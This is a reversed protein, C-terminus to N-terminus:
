IMGGMDVTSYMSQASTTPLPADVAMRDGSAARAAQKERAPKAILVQAPCVVIEEEGAGTQDGKKVVLPFLVIRVVAQQDELDENSVGIDGSRENMTLANFYVKRVLDGNNDYEPRLPPLMMYEARQTRMEISLDVAERVVNRLSDQIQNLLHPPPPLLSSLTHLIEQVVAETDQARQDLFAPRRSLLTLTTARWQHVAAQPGVDALTKELAKLKQRQERDMGFLYRTFIYEWVMIMVVSMFIDRRKVRDNLYYDVDTDDLTTNDVRDRIKDDEVDDLPRCQKNDSFKSFRLVWEKVHQCLTQCATEFYDEDRTVLFNESSKSEMIQRQLAKVKEKASLLEGNLRQLQVNKEELAVSIEHRVIAEMGSTLEDHQQRLNELQATREELQRRPADSQNRTANEVQATLSANLAAISANVQSLRAVEQQIRQLTEKLQGIETDKVRLELDRTELAEKLAASSRQQNYLADELNEEAKAKAEVLLRNESVVQDLKTELDMLQMSHRRRMLSPPRTPSLPSGQVDGWGEQMLHRANALTPPSQSQLHSACVTLPFRVATASVYVDAMDRARGKGKDKVPDYTSSSPLFLEAPARTPKEKAQERKSAARLDGSVSRDVRRLPPTRPSGTSRNSLVSGARNSLASAPRNASDRDRTDEPSKRRNISTSSRASHRDTPSRVDTERASPRGPTIPSLSRRLQSPPKNDTSRDIDVTHDNEDVAPWSLRSLLDETSILKTDRTSTPRAVLRTPSHDTPGAPLTPANENRPIEPSIPSLERKAARITPEYGPVSRSKKSLPSNDPSNESITGLRRRESATIEIAPRTPSAVGSIDSNTGAPGGFISPPSRHSPLPSTSKKPASSPHSFPHTDSIERPQPSPPQVTDIQLQRRAQVEGAKPTKPPPSPDAEIQVQHQGHTTGVERPQSPSPGTDVQVRRQTDEQSKIIPPTHRSSEIQIRHRTHTDDVERPRAPPSHGSDLRIHRAGGTSRPQPSPSHEPDPRARHQVDTHMGLQAADRMPPTIEKQRGRDPSQPSAGPSPSGVLRDKAPPSKFLISDREKSASEVPSPEPLDDISRSRLIGTESQAIIPDHMDSEMRRQQPNWVIEISPASDSEPHDEHPRSVSLEYSSSLEVSINLPDSSSSSTRQGLESHTSDSRGAVTAPLKDASRDDQTTEVSEAKASRPRDSHSSDPRSLPAIPLEVISLVDHTAKALGADPKTPPFSPHKGSLPDERVLKAPETKAPQLEPHSDPKRPRPASLTGMPPDEQVAKISLMGTGQRESDPTSSKLPEVSSASTGQQQLSHPELKGLPASPLAEPLLGKELVTSQRTQITRQEKARPSNPRSLSLRPLKSIHSDNQAIEAPETGVGQQSYPPDPRSLPLNPLDSTLSFDGPGRASGRSPSGYAAPPQPSAPVHEPEAHETTPIDDHLELSFSPAKPTSQGSGLLEGSPELLGKTKDKDIYLGPYSLGLDEHGDDWPRTEELTRQQLGEPAETIEYAEGSHLSPSRSTTRSSPLSPYTEDQEVEQRSMHREVLYLPRFETSSKFETSNPRSGRRPAGPSSLPSKALSPSVLPRRFSLPIATPSALKSATQTLRHDPTQAAATELYETERPQSPPPIVASSETGTGLEIQHDGSQEQSLDLDPLAREVGKGKDKKSVGTSFSSDSIAVPEDPAEVPSATPFLGEGIESIFIAKDNEGRKPRKADVMSESLSEAPSTVTFLPEEEKSPKDRKRKKDNKSKDVVEPPSTADLTISGPGEQTLALALPIDVATSTTSDKAKEDENPKTHVPSDPITAPRELIHTPAVVITIPELERLLQPSSTEGKEVLAQASKKGKKDKKSKTSQFSPDIATSSEGLVERVDSAAPATEGLENPASSSPPIIEEEMWALANKKKAKRDKKSKTKLPSSVAAPEELNEPHGTITSVDKETPTPISLAEPSVASSKLERRASPSLPPEEEMWSQLDGKKNKKGEKGKRLKATTQAFPDITALSESVDAPIIAAPTIPNLERSLPIEDTDALAPAPTAEPPSVEISQTPELEKPALPPPPTKTTDKSPHAPFIEAPTEMTPPALQPEESELPAPLVWKEQPIPTPLIESPAINARSTSELKEPGVFSALIPKDKRANKKGKKVKDRKSNQKTDAFPDQDALLNDPAEPPSAETEPEQPVLPLTRAVETEKSAPIPSTEPLSTNATPTCKPEETAPSQFPIEETRALADRKKGKEKRSKKEAKSPRDPAAVHEDVATPSSGTPHRTSELVQSTPSQLATQDEQKSADGKEDGGGVGRKSSASSDPVVISKDLIESSAAVVPPTSKTGESAFALLPVEAEEKSTPILPIEPPSATASSALGLEEPEIGGGEARLLPVLSALPSLPIEEVESTPLLPIEVPSTATHSTVPLERAHFSPPTKDEEKPIPTRLAEPMGATTLLNPELEEPTPPLPIKAAERLADLPIATLKPGEPALSLRLTVDGEKLVRTPLIEPPRAVALPHDEAKPLPLPIEGAEGPDQIPTTQSPDTVTPLNLELEQPNEDGETFGRTSASSKRDKKGKKIKKSTKTNVPPKSTATAEGAVEAPTIAGLLTPGPEEPPLPPSTEEQEVRSQNGRKKGKKEKKPKKPTYSYPEIDTMSGSVAAATPTTTPVIESEEPALQPPAEEVEPAIAVNKKGKKDKKDKKTKIERYVSSEPTAAATAEPEETALTISRASDEEMSTSVPLIDTPPPTSKIEEGEAFAPTSSRRKVEDEQTKRYADTPPETAATSEGTTKERSTETPIVETERPALSASSGDDKPTPLIVPPSTETPPTSKLNQEPRIEDEALTPVASDKKTGKKEKKGKKAAKAPAAVLNELVGVQSRAAILTSESMQSIEDEEKPAPSFTDKKGSGKRSKKTVKVRYMSPDPATVTAGLDEAQSTTTPLTPKLERSALFEPLIEDEESLAPTPTGKVTKKGEERTSRARNVVSPDVPGENILTESLLSGDIGLDSSSATLETLVPPITAHRDSPGEIDRAPPASSSVQLPDLSPSSPASEQLPPLDDVSPLDAHTAVLIEPPLPPSPKPLPQSRVLHIQPYEMSPSSRGSTPLPPLDTINVVSPIGAPPVGKKGPLASQSRTTEPPPPIATPTLPLNAVGRTPEPVLEQAPKLLPSAPGSPPLAPLDDLTLTPGPTPSPPLSTPLPPLDDLSLVLESPSARPQAPGLPLPLNNPILAPQVDLSREPELSPISKRTPEQLPSLPASAPLIPLDSLDFPSEPPPTPRPKVLPSTPGSDPLAPLDGLVLAPETKSVYPQVPTSELLPSPLVSISLTPLNGVSRMTESAPQVPSPELPSPPDSVPLPPLEGLSLVPKSLPQIATPELVPSPPSSTPLAPLDDLDTMPKSTSTSSRTQTSESSPVGLLISPLDGPGSESESALADLSRPAELRQTIKPKSYPSSPRNIPLTPLNSLDVIPKSPSQVPEPESYPSSPRSIPLTPLTGLDFIPKSPSQVPEPESYPSSSRSIPLTPLTSLDFIPESPSQIPEPESYPSSPRSIPLTPLNSLNIIPKSPSQVPEPESYPSSPRSIPLTPLTSLDFIPESPSQILGQEPYPSSPRGIPLTPLNSPNIIPKSPTQVPESESYPSSPRSIPLTPLTSLDFIPESPSQAPEPESYPSPSRSIPLTPLNSLNVIPKSPSQVPEPESYPSSPRSVPLTPLTSLDFIPESPSQVLEKESYPSSPRSAPLVPLDNLDLEAASPPTRTQVTEPPPPGSPPLAALSRPGPTPESPLQALESRPSSPGSAPLPPLNDLGPAANFTLSHLQTPESLPSSPVSFPLPPLDSLDFDPEPTLSRVQTPEAIPSSPRSAPLAPLDDLNFSLELTPSSPSSDPLAPLDDLKLTPVSPSSPPQASKKYPSLPANLPHAPLDNSRPLPESPLARSQTSELPQSPPGSAIPPASPIDFSPLSRPQVSQPFPKSLSSVPIQPIYHSEPASHSSTLPAPAEKPGPLPTHSPVVKELSRSSKPISAAAAAAAIATAAVIKPHYDDNDESTTAAEVVPSLPRSTTIGRSVRRRPPASVDAATTTAVAVTPKEERQPVGSDGERKDAAVVFSRTDTLPPAKRRTLLVGSVAPSSSMGSSPPIYVKSYQDQTIRGSEAAASVSSERSSRRKDKKDRSKKSSITTTVSPSESYNKTSGTSSAATGVTSETDGFIDSESYNSKSKSTRRTEEAFHAGNNPSPEIDRPDRSGSSVSSRKSKSKKANAKVDDDYSEPEAVIPGDLASVPADVPQKSSKGSVSQRKAEKDKAKQERKSLKRAPKWESEEVFQGPLKQELPGAGDSEVDSDTLGRQAPVVAPRPPKVPQHSRPATATKPSKYSPYEEESGPPSERHYYSADETVISPNFGSKELGSALTAAFEIDEGYSGPMQHADKEEARPTATEKVPGASVKASQRKTLKEEKPPESKGRREPNPPDVIATGGNGSKLSDVIATRRKETKPPDVIATERTNPSVEASYGKAQPEKQSVESVSPQSKTGIPEIPPVDSPPIVPARVPTMAPTGPVSVPGRWSGGAVSGPPTPHILNLDPVPWPLPMYSDDMEDNTANFRYGPSYPPGKPATTVIEPAHYAHANGPHVVDRTYTASDHYEQYGHNDYHGDRDAPKSSPKDGMKDLLEPPAVYVVIPEDKQKYKDLVSPVHSYDDNSRDTTVKAAPKRAIDTQRDSRSDNRPRPDRDFESAKKQRQDRDRIEEAEHRNEARSTASAAAAAGVAAGIAGAAVPAVWSSSKEKAERELERERLRKQREIDEERQRRKIDAEIQERHIHEQDQRAREREREERGRRDDEALARIREQERARVRVAEEERAVRDREAALTRLRAEEQLRLREKEENGLREREYRARDRAIKAQEPTDRSGSRRDSDRKDRAQREAQDQTLKFRVGTTQDRAERVPISSTPPGVTVITPSSMRRPPATQFRKEEDRTIFSDDRVQYKFPDAPPRAQQTPVAVEGQRSHTQQVPPISSFVPPGSPATYSPQNPLSQTHYLPPPQPGQSSYITPPPPGQSSYVAQSVPAFPKPQQIPVPMPRSTLIPQMQVSSISGHTTADYTMHGQTSIPHANQLANQTSGLPAEGRVSAAIATGATAGVAAGVLTGSILSGTSPAAFPGGHSVEDPRHVSSSTKKNKSSNKGGWPWLWNGSSSSTDSRLSDESRRSITSRSGAFSGYALGSYRISDDDSEWEDDSPSSSSSSRRSSHNHHGSDKKSADKSRGKGKKDRNSKAVENAALLAAATGLGAITADTGRRDKGKISESKRRHRRDSGYGYHLGSDSSSSSSNGFNFFGRKKTPVRHKKESQSSFFSGFISGTSGRNASSTSGRSQPSHRGSSRRRPRVFEGKPSNSRSRHHKSHSSAVASGVAAGVAAGLLGHHRDRSGSRSRSGSRRRRHKPKNPDVVTTVSGGFPGGHTEKKYVHGDRTIGIEARGRSGSRSRHKSKTKTHSHSSTGLLAGAILGGTSSASHGSTHHSSKHKSHHSTRDRSRSRSRSRSSKRRFFSWRGSATSRGSQVSHSDGFDRSQGFISKGLRLLGYAGLGTAILSKKSRGRHRHGATNDSSSYRSDKDIRSSSSYREGVLRENSGRRRSHYHHKRPADRPTSGSEFCYKCVGIAETYEEFRAVGEPDKWFDVLRGVPGHRRPPHLSLAGGNSTVVSSSSGAVSLHETSHNHHGHHHQHALAAAGLGAAGALYLGANSNSSSHKGNKPPRVSASPTSSASIYNSPAASVVPQSHYSSSSAHQQPSSGGHGALYGVAAGAAAAGLAAGAPSSTFHHGAGSTPASAPPYGGPYAPPPPYANSPPASSYGTPNPVPPPPYGSTAINPPNSGQQYFSTSGSSSGGTAAGAAYGVAASGAAAAVTSGSIKGTKGPKTPKDPPRSSSGSPQGSAYDVGNFYDAAAGVGGMASPEIPPAAMPSAPQLHPETGAILSPPKPRVGPQDLVSQGQDGYYDAALGPGGENVSLPPRFPAASQKPVQGPFIDPVQSPIQPAAAGPPHFGSGQPGAVDYQGPFQNFNQGGVQASFAGSAQASHNGGDLPGARSVGQDSGGRDPDRSKEGRREGKERAGSGKRDRRKDDQEYDRAGGVRDRSRSRTRKSDRRDRSRSRDRDKKSDRRDRDRDRDRSRSRDRDRKGDRRERSRSRDRDRDRRGGREDEQGRDRRRETDKSSRDKGSKSSSMSGVRAPEQRQFSDSDRKGSQDSRRERDADREGVDREDRGVNSSLTSAYSTSTPIYVRESRDRDDGRTTSSPKRGSSSTVISEARRRSDPSVPEDDWRDNSKRDDLAKVVRNWM